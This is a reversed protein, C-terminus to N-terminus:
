ELIGRRKAPVTADGCLFRDGGAAAFDNFYIDLWTANRDVDYRTISKRVMCADSYKVHSLHRQYCAVHTAYSNDILSTLIRLCFASRKVRLSRSIMFAIKADPFRADASSIRDRSILGGLSEDTRTM